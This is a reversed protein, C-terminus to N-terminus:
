LYYMYFIFLLKLFLFIFYRNNNKNVLHAPLHESGNVSYLLNPVPEGDIKFNIQLPQNINAEAYYVDNARIIIRPEYGQVDKVYLSAKSQVTGSENTAMVMWYGADEPFVEKLKFIFRFTGM